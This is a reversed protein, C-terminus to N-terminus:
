VASWVYSWGKGLSVPYERRFWGLRAVSPLMLCAEREERVAVLRCFVNSREIAEDVIIEQQM